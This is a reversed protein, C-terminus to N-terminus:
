RFRLSLVEKIIQYASLYAERRSNRALGGIGLGLTGVAAFLGVSVEWLGPLATESKHKYFAAKSELLRREASSLWKAYNFADRYTRIQMVHFSDMHRGRGIVSLNAKLRIDSGEKICGKPSYCWDRSACERDWDNTDPCFRVIRIAPIWIFDPHGLGTYLEPIREDSNWQLVEAVLYAAEIETM